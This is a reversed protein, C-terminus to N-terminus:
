RKPEGALPDLHGFVPAVDRDAFLLVSLVVVMLAFAAGIARSQPRLARALPLSAGAVLTWGLAHHLFAARSFLWPNQEHVLFAVGSVFVGAPLTLEWLANRLRGHVLALQVAGALMMTQAWVSHALMHITSSTFFVTVPWLGLGTVFVTAPFLYARWRRRRWVEQGVIVEALMLLALMLLATAFLWHVHEAPPRV